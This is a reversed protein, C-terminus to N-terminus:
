ERLPPVWLPYLGFRYPSPIRYIEGDPYLVAVLRDEYPGDSVTLAIHAGDASPILPPYVYKEHGPEFRPEYWTTTQQDALSYRLIAQRESHYAYFFIAQEDPQWSPCDQYWLAAPSGSPEGVVYQINGQPDLLVLVSGSGKGDDPPELEPAYEFLDYKTIAAIYSGLPSFAWCGWDLWTHEPMLGPLDRQIGTTLDFIHAPNDLFWEEGFGVTVYNLDPSPTVAYADPFGYIIRMTEGTLVSAEVLRREYGNPSEVSPYETDFYITLGNSGWVVPYYSQWDRPYGVYHMPPNDDMCRQLAGTRNLICLQRPSLTYADDIAPMIRYIALLDGQPSWKLPMLEDAEADMYFPSVELTNADVRAIINRPYDRQGGALSATFLLDAPLPPIASQSRAPRPTAGVGALLGIVLVLITIQRRM